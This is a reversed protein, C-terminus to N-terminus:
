TVDTSSPLGLRIGSTPIARYLVCAQHDSVILLDVEQGGERLLTLEREIRELNM